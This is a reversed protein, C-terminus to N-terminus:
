GSNVDLRSWHIKHGRRKLERDTLLIRSLRIKNMEIKMVVTEIIIKVM